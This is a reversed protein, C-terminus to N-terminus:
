ISDKNLYKDIIDSDILRSSIGLSTSGGYCKVYFFDNLCDYGIFVFGASVIKSFIATHSTEVTFIIPVQNENIVYKLVKM